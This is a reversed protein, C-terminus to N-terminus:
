EVVVTHKKMAPSGRERAESGGKPFANARVSMREYQGAKGEFM